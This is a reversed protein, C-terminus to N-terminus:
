GLWAIIKEVISIVKLAVYAITLGAKLKKVAKNRTTKVEPLTQNSLAQNKNSM